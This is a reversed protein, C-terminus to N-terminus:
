RLDLRYADDAVRRVALRHIRVVIRRRARDGGEGLPAADAVRRGGAEIEEALAAEDQHFVLDVGAVVLLDIGLRHEVVVGRRSGRAANEDKPAQGAALTRCGQGDGPVG